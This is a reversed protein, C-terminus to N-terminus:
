SLYLSLKGAIANMKQLSKEDSKFDDITIGQKTMWDHLPQM